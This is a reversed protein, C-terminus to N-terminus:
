IRAEKTNNIAKPLPLVAALIAVHTENINTTNCIAVFVTKYRFPNNIFKVIRIILIMTMTKKYIYKSKYREAM